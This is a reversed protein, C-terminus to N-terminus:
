KKEYVKNKVAENYDERFTDAMQKGVIEATQGIYYDVEKKSLTLLQATTLVKSETSSEIKKSHSNIEGIPITYTEWNEWVLGGTEREIIQATAFISVTSKDKYINLVCSKLNLEVLFSPKDMKRDVTQIDLFTILADELKYAINNILNDTDIYEKLSSIKQYSLLDSGAELVKELDSKDKKIEKKSNEEINVEISRAEPAIHTIYFAKKGRLVYNSIQNTHGCACLFIILLSISIVKKM